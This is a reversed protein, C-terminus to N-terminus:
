AWNAGDILVGIKSRDCGSHGDGTPWVMWSSARLVMDTLGLQDTTDLPRGRLSPFCYVAWTGFSRQTLVDAIKGVEQSM